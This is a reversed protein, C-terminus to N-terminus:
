LSPKSLYKLALYCGFLGRRGPPRRAGTTHFDYDFGSFTAENNLVIRVRVPALNGGRGRLNHSYDFLKL